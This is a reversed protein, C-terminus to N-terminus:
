VDALVVTGPQKGGGYSADSNSEANEAGGEAPFYGYSYLWEIHQALGDLDPYVVAANIGCRDLQYRIDRFAYKPVLIKTLKSHHEPTEQLAAVKGSSVDIPHVTFVSGQARIRPSIHRPKWYRISSLDTPMTNSVRVIDVDEPTFMWVIANSADPVAPKYLAFWLAALPNHTWDLLRTAMGHHQALASLEWKSAPPSPLYAALAREFHGLMAAEIKALSQGEPVRLRGLKPRLPWDAAQGRFLSEERKCYLELFETYDSLRDIQWEAYVSTTDTNRKLPM